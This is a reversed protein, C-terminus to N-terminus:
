ILSHNGMEQVSKRPFIGNWCLLHNIKKKERHLNRSIKAKKELILARVRPRTNERMANLAIGVCQGTKKRYIKKENPLYACWVSLSHKFFIIIFNANANWRQMYFSQFYTTCEIPFLWSKSSNKSAYRTSLEFENAHGYRPQSITGYLEFCSCFYVYFWELAMSSHQSFHLLILLFLRNRVCVCLQMRVFNCM